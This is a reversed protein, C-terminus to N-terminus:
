PRAPDDPSVVAIRRLARAERGGEKVVVAVQYAGPAEPLEVQVYELARGDAALRRESTWELRVAAQGGGRTVGLRDLVRLPLSRAEADRLDVAVEYRGNGREDRRAGYVEWVVWVSTGPTVELTRSPDITLDRWTVPEGEVRSTVRHAVLLDSVTLTDDRWRRIPLTDRATASGGFGEAWAELSYAYDGPDLAVAYSLAVGEGAAYSARQEAVKPFGPADRFLFLGAVVSDQPPLEMQRAAVVSHIVVATEDPGRGKFRAVQVPLRFSKPALRSRFTLPSVARLQEAYEEASADLLYRAVRAGGRMEFMLSPRNPSFTWFMWRGGAEDRVTGAGPAPACSEPEGGPMAQCDLFGAAADYAAATVYRRADRSVQTVLSPWGYRLLADGQPTEPGQVQAERDRLVLLAYTVRNWYEVQVENFAALWLPRARLWFDPISDLGAPPREYWRRLSDPLAPIARQFLSDAARLRGLQAAALGRVAVAVGPFLGAREAALALADLREWESGLALERGLREFAEINTSDLQVTRRLFGIVTERHQAFDTAVEPTARLRENFESPRTYNECFAGQGVCAPTTVGLPTADKLWRLRDLQDQLYRGRIFHIRALVRPPTSDPFRDALDLARRIARQADVQVLGEKRQVLGFELWAGANYPRLQVARDLLGRAVSRLERDGRTDYGSAASLAAGARYLADFDNRCDRGVDRGVAAAEARDTPLAGTLRDLHAACRGTSATQLVLLAVALM